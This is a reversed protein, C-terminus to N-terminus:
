TMFWHAHYHVILDCNQVTANGRVLILTKINNLSNLVVIYQFASNDINWTVHINNLLSQVSLLFCSREYEIIKKGFLIKCHINVTVMYDELLM